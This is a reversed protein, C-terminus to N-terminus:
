HFFFFKFREKREENRRLEEVDKRRRIREEMCERM